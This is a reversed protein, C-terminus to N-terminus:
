DGSVFFTWTGDTEIGVRYGLYGGFEEFSQIDRDTYGLKRLDELDLETWDKSLKAAAAPWLYVGRNKAYHSALTTPLIDGIIPVHAKEELRQWYRIPDGDEGFSYSFTEPDLLAELDEWHQGLAALQIRTRTLAVDLPLAKEPTAGVRAADLVVLPSRRGAVPRGPGITLVEVIEGPPADGFWAVRIRVIAEWRLGIKTVSAVTFEKYLAGPGGPISDDYLWLGADHNEYADLTEATVFSDVIRIRLRQTMFDDVLAEVSEAASSDLGSPPGDDMVLRAILYGGVSLFIAWVLAFRILGRRSFRTM